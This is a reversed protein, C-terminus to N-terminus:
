ASPEREDPEGLAEALGARWWPDVEPRASQTLLCAITREVPEPQPPDLDLKM